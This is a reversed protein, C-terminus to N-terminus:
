AAVGETVTVMVQGLGRHRKAGLTLILHSCQTLWQVIPWDKVQINDTLHLSMSVQATLIMPVAVEISRLSANKAVGTQANIATSQLVRYLHKTVAPDSNFRFFDQETPSLVASSFHLIGQTTLTEGQQGFLVNIIETGLVDSGSFWGNAHAQEFAERFLGKLSKGPMYPLGLRDKLMLADAYAGGEEGSGIHWDSRLDLGIMLSKM